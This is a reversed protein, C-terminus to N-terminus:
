QQQGLGKLRMRGCRMVATDPMTDINKKSGKVSYFELVPLFLLIDLTGNFAPRPRPTASASKITSHNAYSFCVNAGNSLAAYAPCSPGPCWAPQCVHGVQLCFYVPAISSPRASASRARSLPLGAASVVVAETRLGTEGGRVRQRAPGGQRPPFVRGPDGQLAAARPQGLGCPPVRSRRSRIEYVLALVARGLGHEAVGQLPLPLGQAGLMYVVEGGGQLVLARIGLRLRHQALRHGDLLAREAVSVGAGKASKAAERRQEVVDVLVSFGLCHAASCQSPGSWGCLRSM